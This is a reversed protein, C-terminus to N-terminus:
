FPKEFVIKTSEGLKLISYHRIFETFLDPAISLYIVVQTNPHSLERITDSLKQYDEKESVEV